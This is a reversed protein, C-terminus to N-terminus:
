PLPTPPHACEGQVRRRSGIQTLSVTGHLKLSSHFPQLETERFQYRLHFVTLNSILDKVTYNEKFLEFVM